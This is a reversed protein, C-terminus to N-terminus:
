CLYYIWGKKIPFIKMNSNITKTIIKAIAGNKVYYGRIYPM